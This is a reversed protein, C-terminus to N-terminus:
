LMEGEIPEVTIIIEGHQSREGRVPANMRFCGDDLGMALAIGDRYAKCAGIVGDDDPRSRPPPRYEVTFRYTGAAPPIGAAMAAHKAWAKHRATERAKTAWHPRGNPWLDRPPWPLKVIM